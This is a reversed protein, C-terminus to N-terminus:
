PCAADTASICGRPPRPHSWSRLRSSRRNRPTVIATLPPVFPCPMSVTGTERRPLSHRIRPTRRCSRVHGDPVSRRRCNRHPPRIRCLHTRCRLRPWLRTSSGLLACTGLGAAGLAIASVGVIVFGLETHTTACPHHLLHPFMGLFSELMHLLRRKPKARIGAPGQPM